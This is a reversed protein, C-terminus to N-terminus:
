LIYLILVVTALWLVVDILLPPDTLLLRTPSGGKAEKHVLYLYRFIGYIVFPITAFLYETGLKDGV